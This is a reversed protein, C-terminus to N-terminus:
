CMYKYFARLGFHLKFLNFGRLMYLMAISMGPLESLLFIKPSYIILILVEMPISVQLVALQAHEM